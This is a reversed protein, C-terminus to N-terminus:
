RGAPALMRAMREPEAIGQQRMWEEAERRLGAGEDGGMAEGQRYRVVAAHLAMDVAAFGAAARAWLAQAPEMEGRVTAVGALLTDGLPQSWPMREALVRQADREVARLLSQDVKAAKATKTGPDGQREIAAALQVRGRLQYAETRTLQVRLLLAKDLQKWKKALLRRMSEGEGVYLGIHVQALLDWWHEVHFSKRSWREIGVRQRERAEEVRGAALWALNALGVCLSTAAYLDGREEAEHLQEPVREILEGIRGLYTLSVNTFLEVTAREWAIGTCEDHFIRGAQRCRELGVKWRGELVATIGSAAAAWGLAYPDGLQNALEVSASVLRTARRHGRVGAVAAFCAEGALGRAVRHPEGAGLAFLLFRTQFYSARVYDVLGLTAGASWCVDMRVLEAPDLRSADRARFRIGRLWVLFRRWLLGAVARGSTRPLRLGVARLVEGLAELGEDIYGSRLLQEAARRRLDLAIASPAQGAAVLYARAAVPGRGANALAEGLKSELAHRGPADPPQLELAMQYLRAARDFALVGSAEDAARGAYMAARAFDGEERWHIALAEADARRSAELALALRQHWVKRAEADMHELVAERVRDHYPEILDTRLPGTMRVLHEGRLQAVQESFMGFQSGGAQALTEQMLPAGAVALIELLERAPRPLRRIRAWLAEELRLPHEQGQTREGLGEEGARGLGGPEAAGHGAGGSFPETEVALRSRVLENIFLPHGAAESAIASANLVVPAGTSSLIRRALAEAEAPPLGTVELERVEGPLLRALVAVNRL